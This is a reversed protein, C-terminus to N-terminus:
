GQRDGGRSGENGEEHWLVAADYTPVGATRRGMVGTQWSQRALCVGHLWKYFRKQSRKTSPM